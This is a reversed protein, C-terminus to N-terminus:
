HPLRNSRRHYDPPVEFLKPDPEGIRVMTVEIQHHAVVSGASGFTEETSKMLTCGLSPALFLTSREAESVWGTYGFSLFGAIQAQGFRRPAGLGKMTTFGAIILPHICAEGGGALVVDADGRRILEAAEM